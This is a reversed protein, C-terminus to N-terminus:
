ILRAIEDQVCASVARGRAPHPTWLPCLYSRAGVDASGARGSPQETTARINALWISQGSAVPNQKLSGSLRVTVPRGGLGPGAVVGDSEATRVPEEAEYEEYVGFLLPM